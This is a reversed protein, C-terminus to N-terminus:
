MMGTRQWVQQAASIYILSLQSILATEETLQFSFCAFLLINNQLSYVCHFVIVFPSPNQQLMIATQLAVNSPMSKLIDVSLM